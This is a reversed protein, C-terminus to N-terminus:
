PFTAVPDPLHAMDEMLSALINVRVDTNGSDLQCLLRQLLTVLKKERAKLEAIEQEYLLIRVKLSPNGM